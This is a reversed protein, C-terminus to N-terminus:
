GIIKEAEERLREDETKETEPAEEETEPAAEKKKSKNKEALAQKEKLEQM